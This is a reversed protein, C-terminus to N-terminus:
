VSGDRKGAFVPTKHASFVRPKINYIFFNGGESTITGRSLSSDASNFLGIAIFPCAYKVTQLTELWRM